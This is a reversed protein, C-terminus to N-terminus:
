PKFKDIFRLPLRDRFEEPFCLKVRHPSVGIRATSINGHDQGDSVVLVKRKQPELVTLDIRSDMPLVLSKIPCSRLAALPTMTVAQCDITMMSGTANFSYATSGLPTSVVVGDCVIPNFALPRGNISVEIRCTQTTMRQLYIDNLGVGFHPRNECDRAEIELLPFEWFIIQGRALSRINHELGRSISAMMFGFRGYNLGYFPLGYHSLRGAFHIMTGDGGLVLFLDADQDPIVQELPVAIYEQTAIGHGLCLRKVDDLAEGIVRASTASRPDALIVCKKIPDLSNVTM